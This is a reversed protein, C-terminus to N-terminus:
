KPVFGDKPAESKYGFYGREKILRAVKGTVMQEWQEDGAVIRSAVDRSSFGVSDNPLGRIPVIYGNELLYEYLHKLKPAVPVADGAILTGAEDLAPYAYLKIANKFLRGVSELIGGDLDSYYKEDFLEKLLPVGLVIGIMNQTNRSLYAALRYFEAYDSILVTKGAAGLVEARALFDQADVTGSQLLNRMTIEMVEVIPQGVNVPEQLFHVRAAELMTLNVRTVPRFTGRELLIAKKRFFESPQLVEGSPDILAAESLGNAVLHLSMLRNDVGKFDPGSFQIMDVEIREVSLSDLLSQVLKVPDQHLYFAGYILNVGIIGLAEQQQVNEKDLMRVHVIVDNYQEQQPTLQFRVGMWGHCESNGKFSRATVTDAFVFFTSAEGRKVSLRDLLLEYEHDLMQTLRKRCVYRDCPGYIADSVTMDYASMSKAVTGAAAGVRFFWRAVEQGAGIEAFVGYIQPNLNIALAKNHADHASGKQAPVM